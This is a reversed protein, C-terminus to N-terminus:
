LSFRHKPGSISVAGVVRGNIEFIPAAICRAGEVIEEDDLAYGREKTKKLDTLIAKKNLLTNKTYPKIEVENLLEEIVKEENHSIIAKGLGTAHVPSRSGISDTMRLTFNSEIIDIYVIETNSLVGLNITDGHKIFLKEM